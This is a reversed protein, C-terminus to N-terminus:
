SNTEGCKHGLMNTFNYCELETNLPHKTEIKVQICIIGESTVRPIRLGELVGSYHNRHVTLVEQPIMLGM